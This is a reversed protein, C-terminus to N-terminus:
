RSIKTVIKHPFRRGLLRWWWAMDNKQNARYAEDRQKETQYWQKYTAGSPKGTRPNVFAIEIGWVRRRERRSQGKRHKQHPTRKEDSPRYDPPRHTGPRTM